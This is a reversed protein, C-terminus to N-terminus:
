FSHVLLLFSLFFCFIHSLPLAAAGAGAVMHWTGYSAFTSCLALHDWKTYETNKTHTYLQMHWNAYHTHTRSRSEMRIAFPAQFMFTSHCVCVCLSLLSLLFCVCMHSRFPPVIWSIIHFQQWFSHRFAAHVLAGSKISVTIIRGCQCVSEAVWEEDTNRGREREEWEAWKQSWDESSYPVCVIVVSYSNFMNPDIKQRCMTSIAGNLSCITWRKGAWM